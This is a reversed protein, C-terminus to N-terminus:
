RNRDLSIHDQSCDIEVMEFQESDDPLACKAFYSDHFPFIRVQRKSQLVYAFIFTHTCQQFISVSDFPCSVHAVTTRDSLTRFIMRSRRM